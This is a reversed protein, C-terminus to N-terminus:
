HDKMSKMCTNPSRQAQILPNSVCAANGRHNFRTQGQQMHARFILVAKLPQKQSSLMAKKGWGGRGRLSLTKCSSAARSAPHRHVADRGIGKSLKTLNKASTPEPLVHFSELLLNHSDPHLTQDWPKIINHNLKCGALVSVSRESQCLADMFCPLIQRAVHWLAAKTQNTEIYRKYRFPV